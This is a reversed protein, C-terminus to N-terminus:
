ITQLTVAFGAGFLSKYGRKAWTGDYGIKLPTLGTNDDEEVVKGRSDGLIQEAVDECLDKFKTIHSCWTSKHYKCPHEPMQVLLKFLPSGNGTDLSVMIM